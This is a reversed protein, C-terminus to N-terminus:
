SKVEKFDYVGVDVLRDLIRVAKRVSQIEAPTYINGNLRHTADLVRLVENFRNFEALYQDRTM